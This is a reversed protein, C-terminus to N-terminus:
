ASAKQPAPEVEPFLDAKAEELTAYGLNGICQRCRLYGTKSPCANYCAISAHCVECGGLMPLGLDQFDQGTEAPKGLIFDALQSITIPQHDM